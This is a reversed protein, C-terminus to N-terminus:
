RLWLLDSDQKMWLKRNIGVLFGYQSCASPFDPNAVGSENNQINVGELNKLFLYSFSCGKFDRKQERFRGRWSKMTESNEFDWPWTPSETQERVNAVVTEQQDSIVVIYLLGPLLVTVSIQTLKSYSPPKSPIYRYLYHPLLPSYKKLVASNALLYWCRELRPTRYFEVLQLKMRLWSLLNWFKAQIPWFGPRCNWVMFFSRSSCIKCGKSSPSFVVLNLNADFTLSVLFWFNLILHLFYSGVAFEAEECFRLKETLQSFIRWNYFDFFKCTSIRRTPLGSSFHAKRRYGSHGAFVSGGISEGNGTRCAKRDLWFENYQRNGAGEVVLCSSDVITVGNALQDFSLWGM